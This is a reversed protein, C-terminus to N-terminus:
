NKNAKRKKLKEKYKTEIEKCQIITIDKAVINYIPYFKVKKSEGTQIYYSDNKMKIDYKGVTKILVSTSTTVTNNMKAEVLEIADKASPKKKVNVWIDKEQEDSRYKLCFGMKSKFYIIDNGLYNTIIINNMFKGDNGGKEVTGYKEKFKEIQPLLTDYFEHLVTLWDSDGNVIDDLQKELNATFSIEMVQPFNELLFDNVIIGLDTPVLRDNEQGIFVKNENIVIEERINNYSMEWLKKEKGEVNECRMYDKEQGKTIMNVYTAPRGIGLATIHKVMQSENYRKPPADVTEKIKVMVNRVGIDDGYDPIIIDKIDEDQKDNLIAYGKFLMRSVSGVMAWIDDFSIFIQSSEIECKSMQSSMTRKWILNYLSKCESDLDDSIKNMATPRIAEHAEQSSEQNVGYQKEDHYEEGYLSIIENKAMKLVDNSLMTSDTRMYTIFGSEYLRQAVLMTKKIAWGLKSAADCQLTSTIYPALPSKMIHRKKINSITWICGKGGILFDILMSEVNKTKKVSYLKGNKYLNTNLILEKGEITLLFLGLGKYKISHDNNFFEKIEDEKDIVIKTIINQVRGCGLKKVDCTAQLLPIRSLLPSTSYGFIRDMFRRVQQAHVMNYNILIPNAIAHLIADKTISTFGIRYYEKPKLLRLVSEGIFEGERDLDSAIYLIVGKKYLSKIANNNAKKKKEPYFVYTPDFDNDFDLAMSKPDLDMIHGLTSIVEYEDGLLAKIKGIKTPSEVVILYKVVM